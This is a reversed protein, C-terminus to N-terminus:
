KKLSCYYIIRNALGYYDYITKYENAQFIRLSTVPYDEEGGKPPCDGPVLMIADFFEKTLTILDVTDESSQCFM